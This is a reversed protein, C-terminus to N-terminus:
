DLLLPPPLEGRALRLARHLAEPIGASPARAAVDAVAVWEAAGADTAAVPAPMEQAVAWFDLVLYHYEPRGAEDRVIREAIVALDRLEVELGTEERLERACAQRLTEGAEVLGGPFTWSGEAPPRGRRILLVRELDSSLVIAGVGVLPRHPFRRGTM